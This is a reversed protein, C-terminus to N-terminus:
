EVEHITTGGSGKTFNRLVKLIMEDSASHHQDPNGLVEGIVKLRFKFLQAKEAAVKDLKKSDEIQLGIM